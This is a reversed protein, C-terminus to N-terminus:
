MQQMQVQDQQQEAGSGDNGSLSMNSMGYNDAGGQEIMTQNIASNMANVQEQMQAIQRRIERRKRLTTELAVKDVSSDEPLCETYEELTIMGRVLLNELFIEQAMRDYPSKPTVDIKLNVDLKALEKQTISFPTQVQETQGLEDVQDETAYLTIGDVFYAKIMDFIIKGCDELFYRFGEVQENIPMQNAQQVALIAKGSAQTPDINGTANDGAGALERTGSILDQQLNYADPSMTAPRLYNIVKNVDDARLNTLEVKSGVQDLSEPNMVKDKDVVLKPYSSIKVAIARRTATKNIERQNEKLSNVESTGRASGKEEEWLYHAFPYLECDTQEKKYIDCTKTSCSVVVKGNEKEFKMVVLCMPSVELIMKDSGQQEFYDRDSVISAIDEDSLNNKGQKRFERALERVEEVTKRFTALIYPQKQIDSENENGYYINNKDIEEAFFDNDEGQIYFHIIGESNIASSKVIEGVIKGAQSKEWARMVFQNLGKTVQKLAELEDPTSYTNPNFVIEYARQRVINVKYKIIPKIINLVIPESSEKPRQLGEWQRGHYYNYNETGEQYMNRLKNYNKGLEYLSWITTNQREEM